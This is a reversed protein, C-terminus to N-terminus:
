PITKGSINKRLYSHWQDEVATASLNFVAPAVDEWRDYQAFADLLQPITTHGYTVIIYETLPDAALYISQRDPTTWGKEESNESGSLQSIITSTATLLHISLQEVLSKKNQRTSASLSHTEMMALLRRWTCTDLCDTLMPLQM